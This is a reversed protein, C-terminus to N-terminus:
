SCLYATCVSRRSCSVQPATFWTSCGQTGNDPVAFSVQFAVPPVAPPVTVAKAGGASVVGPVSLVLAAPAAGMGRPQQAREAQLVGTWAGIAIGGASLTLMTLLLLWVRKQKKTRPAEGITPLEQETGPQVASSSGDVAPVAAAAVGAATAAGASAAVKSDEPAQHALLTECESSSGNGACGNIVAATSSCKTVSSRTATSTEGNSSSNTLASHFVTSQGGASTSKDGM